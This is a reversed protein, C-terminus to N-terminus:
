LTLLLNLGSSNLEDNQRIHLIKATEIQSRVASNLAIQPDECELSLPFIAYCAM